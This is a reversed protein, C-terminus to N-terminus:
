RCRRGHDRHYRAPPGEISCPYGLSTSTTYGIPAAPGGLLAILDDVHPAPTDPCPRIEWGAPMAYGAKCNCHHDIPARTVRRHLDAPDPLVTGSSTCAPANCGPTGSALVQIIGCGEGTTTGAPGPHTGIQQPCGSPGDARIQANSGDVDIAGDGACGAGTGDSDVTIFGPSISGDPLVVVDVWIGGTGDGSGEAVIADCDYRELIVLNVATDANTSPRTVAVAHAETTTVKQGIVGGFLTTHTRNLVVAIRECLLGDRYDILQSTSGVASFHMLDDDDPVPYAITLRWDGTTDTLAIPTTGAHCNPAFGSCNIGDFTMGLNLEVYGLANVCAAQGDGEGVELSGAAAAADVVAQAESRHMRVLGLDIVFAAVAMLAFFSGSVLIITVGSENSLSPRCM